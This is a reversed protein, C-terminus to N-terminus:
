RLTDPTASRRRRGGLRRLVLLLAFLATTSAMTRPVTPRIRCGCGPDAISAAPARAPRGNCPS